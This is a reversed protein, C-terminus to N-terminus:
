ADGGTEAGMARENDKVEEETMYNKTHMYENAWSKEILEDGLKRRIENTNYLRAAILKDASEAVEFIDKHKICTTDIRLYNGKKYEERGYRKRTIEETLMDCLPDVCFTLMNNTPEKIDAIDGKLLAPSIKLAQAARCLAEDTMLKIDSIDGGGAKGQQAQRETYDYGNFLPLVANKATFFMKFRQTMLKNFTEEFDPKGQALADIKLTGSHGGSKDHKDCSIKILAEYGRCLNAVLATMSTGGQCFYLVEHMYYTKDFLMTGRSVGSFETEYVAYPTETFHEAIILQGCSEIVLCKGFYLLRAVLEQIFMTSNQNRNPEINWLYYEDGFTEKRQAFTRFECKSVVGAVLNIASYIAFETIALEKEEQSAVFSEVAKSSIEVTKEGTLMSKLWNTLKM